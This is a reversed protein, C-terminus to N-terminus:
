FEASGEFRDLRLGEERWEPHEHQMAIGLLLGKPSTWIVYEPSAAIKLSFKHARWKRGATKMEGEGLYQLPGELVTIRVPEAMGPQEIRVFDVPTAKGSDREVQRAISSFSFPSTPWLLGYPKALPTHTRIERKPDSGGSSCDLEAPLFDCSLPGSDPVWRLTAFEQVRTLTLDRTLEAAFPNSHAEYRPSEFSRTGEVRYGGNEARWLTFSEHFNYVEEGFPRGRWQEGDRSHRIRRRRNEGAAADGARSVCQRQRSQSSPERRFGACFVHRM